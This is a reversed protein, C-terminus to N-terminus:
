SLSPALEPAVNPAEGSGLSFRTPGVGEPPHAMRPRRAGSSAAPASAPKSSRTCCSMLMCKSPSRAWRSRSTALAM